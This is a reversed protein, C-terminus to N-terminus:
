HDHQQRKQTAAAPLLPVIETDATSKFTAIGAGNICCAWTACCAAAVHLNSGTSTAGQTTGHTKQPHVLCLRRHEATQRHRSQM